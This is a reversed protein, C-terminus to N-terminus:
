EPFPVRKVNVVFNKSDIQEPSGGDIIIMGPRLDVYGKGCATFKMQSPSGHEVLVSYSRQGTSSIPSMHPSTYITTGPIGPYSCNVNAGPYVVISVSNLGANTTHNIFEVKFIKTTGEEADAVLPSVTLEVNPEILVNPPITTTTTTSSTATTGTTPTTPSTTTSRVTTTTVPPACSSTINSIATRFRNKLGSYDGPYARDDSSAIAKLNNVNVDSGVGVSYLTAGQAKLNNAAYVGYFLDENDMITNTSPDGNYTTPNGDTFMIVHTPRVSIKSTLDYGAQWNTRGELKPDGGYTSTTDNTKFAIGSVINRLATAQTHNSDPMWSSTFKYARDAFAVVQMSSYPGSVANILGDSDNLAKKIATVNAASGGYRSVSISSSRDIIVMLRIECNTAAPTISTPRGSGIQQSFLLALLCISVISIVTGFFNTSFRQKKFNASYLEFM